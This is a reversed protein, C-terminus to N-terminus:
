GDIKYGMGRVTTIFNMGIKKRINKIHGNVVKGDGYYDYGWVQNLLEERTFVRNKNEMFLKILEYEKYTFPVTRGSIRVECAELDLVVNKHEVTHKTEEKVPYPQKRRLVAEVRRILLNMSFPKSIYDDAQLDFGKIQNEEDELATLLIVPVDSEKRILELVAFGDIKPMMIDLLILAYTTQRFMALGDLGDCACDISYGYEVLFEKLIEQMKLEDEIVLIKTSM